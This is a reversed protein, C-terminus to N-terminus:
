HPSTPPGWGQRSAHFKRRIGRRHAPTDTGGQGTSYTSAASREKTKRLLKSESPLGKLHGKAQQGGQESGAM